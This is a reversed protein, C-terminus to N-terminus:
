KKMKKLASISPSFLYVGGTTTVWQFFGQPAPPPDNPIREFTPNTGDRFLNVFGLKNDPNQPPPPTIDGKGIIADVGHGESPGPPPGDPFGAPNAWVSQIFEFQNALDIQFCMFLLGREAHEDVSVIPGFPIGRRLIRHEQNKRHNEETTQFHGDDRPYVKRIHAFRPTKEGTPDDQMYKFNNNDFEEKKEPDGFSSWKALPAGSRFRGVFRAAFESPTLDFREANARMFAWFADVNQGLRRFVMFSGDNAWEFDGSPLDFLVFKKWDHDDINVHGPTNKRKEIEDVDVGRILPQSVGDRFGFHEIQKGHVNFVATGKQLGKVVIGRETSEGILDVTTEDADAALDSDIRLLGDIPPFTGAPGPKFPQIWTEPDNKGLDGLDGKRAHMGKRFPDNSAVVVAGSKRHIVQEGNETTFVYAGASPPAQRGFKSLGDPTFSVHIITERVKVEEVGLLKKRDEMNKAAVILDQTTPIKKKKVLDEFWDSAKQADEIQFFLLRSNDKNFGKLIGGQINEFHETNPDSM